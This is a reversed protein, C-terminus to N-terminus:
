IAKKAEECVGHAVLNRINAFYKFLRLTERQYDNSLKKEIMDYNLATISKTLWDEKDNEFNSAISWLQYYPEFSKVM